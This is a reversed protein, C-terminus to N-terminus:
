RFFRFNPTDYQPFDVGFVRKWCYEDVQTQYIMMCEWRHHRDQSQAPLAAGLCCSSVEIHDSPKEAVLVGRDDDQAPIEAKKTAVQGMNDDRLEKTNKINTEYKKM